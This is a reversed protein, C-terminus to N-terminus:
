SLVYKDIVNIASVTSFGAFGSIDKTSISNKYDELYKRSVPMYSWHWKEENYGDLRSADKTSYIQCFGYERAHLTLWDYVKKGIPTLFYSDNVSNIDIDTGWHHRSTGPMSSYSLIALAKDKSTLKSKALNRGDVLTKGNWKAEWINKQDGFTRTASVIFLKVSDNQASTYMKQFSLYAEKNMYMGTKNTYKKSIKTFLSNYVPNIQGLLLKKSVVKESSLTSAGFVGGYLVSFIILIFFLFIIKKM